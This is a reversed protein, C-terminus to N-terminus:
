SRCEFVGLSKNKKIKEYSLVMGHMAIFVDSQDNGLLFGYGCMFNSVAELKDISFPIMAGTLVIQKDKLNDSLYKATTDVTDTGHVILIKKFDSNKIFDLLKQRHKNSFELSDKYILGKITFQTIKSSKFIDEIFNNNKDIILSGDIENYRKNFTGGTNIVLIKKNNEV